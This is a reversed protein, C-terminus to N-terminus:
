ERQTLKEIHRRIAAKSRATFAYHGNGDNVVRVQYALLKKRMTYIIQRKSYTVPPLESPGAWDNTLLAQMFQAELPSVGFVAILTKEDAQVEVVHEHTIFALTM